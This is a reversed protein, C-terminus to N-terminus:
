CVGLCIGENHFDDYRLFNSKKVMPGVQVYSETPSAWFIIHFRPPTCAAIIPDSCRVGTAVRGKREGCEATTANQSPTNFCAVTPRVSSFNDINGIQALSNNAYHM